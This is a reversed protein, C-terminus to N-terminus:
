SSKVPLDKLAEWYEWVEKPEGSNERLGLQLHNRNVAGGVAEESLDHLFLWNVFELDMGKTLELFRVLFQAQEEESGGIESDSSWGIESFAIPKSTYSTLRLYYDSPLDAPTEYDRWPYTTFVLLDFKDDFKEILFFRNNEEVQTLSFVVFVKTEPSIKKVEDYTFRYFDVYKDFEEEGALEYYINIENGLSLYEVEFTELLLKLENIWRQRFEQNDLDEVDIRPGGQGLVVTHPEMTIMPELGYVGLGEITRSKTLKETRGEWSEGGWIPTIEAVEAALEYAEFYEDSSFNPFHAPMPVVGIKFSRQAIPLEVSPESPLEKTCGMLLILIFLALLKKM